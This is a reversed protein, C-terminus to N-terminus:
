QAADQAAASAHMEFRRWAQGILRVWAEVDAAGSDRQLGGRVLGPAVQVLEPRDSPVVYLLTHRGYRALADALPRVEEERLAADRRLVFIRGPGRLTELLKRRLYGLKMAQRKLATEADAEDSYTQTAWRFGYRPLTVVYEPRPAENLAITLATPDGIASFDEAFAALLGPLPTDAFRFLGLVDLGLKRQVLGFESTDGLSECARLMTAPSPLTPDPTAEAVPEAAPPAPEPAEPAPSATPSAATLDHAHLAWANAALRLWDAAKTASMVDENPAFAGIQGRLLGPAIREVEGDRGPQAGPVVFLLTNRGHRNLAEWVPRVEAESLPAVRKIVFIKRSARLTELFKRRVFALKTAQQRRTAEAEGQDAHVFTHWRMKYAEVALVYEPRKGDSLSVSVANPDAIAAFDDAFGRLLSELSTYGFRFLGLVEVDLKRQAIGFECNEGLSEFDRLLEAPMLGLDSIVVAPLDDDAVACFRGSVGSAAAALVTPSLAPTEAPPVDAEPEPEPAAAVAEAPLEAQARLTWANACLRLWDTANVSMVDENPAFAAIHGRLLGPGLVEVTGNREPSAGPVVYLLINRGTRNIERLVPLVEAMTLPRERKLVFIKRSARLAEVFKRSVFGLKTAQGRRTAEADAEDAYVFTHWRMKYADVALLLEPRKGDSAVVSVSEPTAIAKFGDAFGRLLSDVPTFGFRFLGLVEADLKRQAIGFECNEGLSEFDRLLAAPSLGLAESVAAPLAAAAVGCFRDAVPYPEIPPAAEDVRRGAWGALAAPLPDTAVSHFCLGLRRSDTSVGLEAPRAASPLHFGLQLPGVPEEAPLPLAFNALQEVSLHALLRGGLTVSVEQTPRKAPHTFASVSLMLLHPGSVPPAPIDLRAFNGETWQFRAEPQSWGERTLDSGPQHLGFPYQASASGPPATAPAEPLPRETALQPTVAPEPLLPLGITPRPALLSYLRVSFFSVALPRGDSSQRLVRPVFFHPHDFVLEIAPRDQWIAPPLPLRLVTRQSLTHTGFFHGNVTVSLLQATVYPASRAPNVDLELLRPRKDWPAPLRMTSRPGLSWALRAEPTGWGAGLYPASNGGVTFDVLVLSDFHTEPAVPTPADPM